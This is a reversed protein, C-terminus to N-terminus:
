HCDHASVGGHCPAIQSAAAEDCALKCCDECGVAHDWAYPKGSGCECLRIGTALYHAKEAAVTRYDERLRAIRGTVIRHGMGGPTYADLARKSARGDREITALRRDYDALIQNRDTM